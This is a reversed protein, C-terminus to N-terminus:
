NAGACLCIDATADSPGVPVATVATDWGMVAPTTCTTTCVANAGAVVSWGLSSTGSSTFTGTTTMNGAFSYTAAGAFALADSGDTITSDGSDFNLVGGTALFLDAWKLSTSGLAGADDTTPSWASSSTVGNLAMTPTGGATLTAFTQYAPGTDTDYAQILLTNTATVDTRLAGATAMTLNAPKQGFVGTAIQSLACKNTIDEGNEQCLFIDSSVIPGTAAPRDSLHTDTAFAPFALTLLLLFAFITKM